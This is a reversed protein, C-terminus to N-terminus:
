KLDSGSLGGVTWDFNYEYVVGKASANTSTPNMQSERAYQSHGDVLLLLMGNAGHAAGPKLWAFADASPTFTRAACAVIVKRSPSLV